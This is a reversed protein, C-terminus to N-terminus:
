EFPTPQELAKKRLVNKERNEMERLYKLPYPYSTFKEQTTLQNTLMLELFPPFATINNGEVIRLLPAKPITTKMNKQRLGCVYVGKQQTPDTSEPAMWFSIDLIDEILHFNEKNRIAGSTKNDQAQKVFEYLPAAAPLVAIETATISFINEDTENFIILEADFHEALDDSLPKPLDDPLPGIYPNMQGNAFNIKVASIGRASQDGPLQYPRAFWVVANNEHLKHFHKAVPCRGESLAKKFWLEFLSKMIASQAQDGSLTSVTLHQCIWDDSFRLYPDNNDSGHIKKHEDADQRILCLVLPSKEAGNQSEPLIELKLLNDSFQKAKSEPLYQKLKSVGKRVLELITTRMSQLEDDGWEDLINGASGTLWITESQLMELVSAAFLTGANGQGKHYPLDLVESASPDTLRQITQTLTCPELWLDSSQFADNIKQIEKQIMLARSSKLSSHLADAQCGDGKKKSNSIDLFPLPEANAACYPPHLYWVDHGRKNGPPAISFYQEGEKEDSLHYGTHLYGPNRNELDLEVKKSAGRIAKGATIKFVLSDKCEKIELYHYTLLRNKNTSPKNVLLVIEKAFLATKGHQRCHVLRAMLCVQEKTQPVYNDDLIKIKTDELCTSKWDASFAKADKDTFMLIWRQSKEKKDMRGPLAALVQKFLGNILDSQNQALYSPQISVVKFKYQEFFTDPNKRRLEVQTTFVADSM